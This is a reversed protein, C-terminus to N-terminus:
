GSQGAASDETDESESNKAQTTAAITEPRHRHGWLGNAALGFGAFTTLVLGVGVSVSVLETEDAAGELDAWDYVGIAAIIGGLIVSGVAMLGCRLRGYVNLLSAGGIALGLILTIVGDGDVGNKSVSFIGLSVRAWPLFAAVVVVGALVLGIVHGPRWDAQRQTDM